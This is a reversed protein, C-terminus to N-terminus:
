DNKINRTFNFEQSVLKKSHSDVIFMYCEAAKQVDSGFFTLLYDQLDKKSLGWAKSWEMPKQIKITSGDEAIKLKDVESFRPDKLIDGIELELSKRDERLNFTMKNLDRLENDITIYKKLCNKLDEM